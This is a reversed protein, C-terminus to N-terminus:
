KQNKMYFDYVKDYILDNKNGYNDSIFNKLKEENQLSPAYRKRNVM